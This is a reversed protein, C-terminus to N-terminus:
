AACIRQVLGDEGKPAVRPVVDDDVMGLYRSAM